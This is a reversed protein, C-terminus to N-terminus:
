LTSPLELVTEGYNTAPAAKSRARGFDLTPVELAAEGGFHTRAHTAPIPQPATARFNLAPVELATEPELSERIVSGLAELSQTTYVPPIPVNRNLKQNIVAAVQEADGGEITMLRGDPMQVKTTKM